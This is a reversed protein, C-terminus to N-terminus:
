PDEGYVAAAFPRNGIRLVTELFREGEDRRQVYVDLVRELADVVADEDLAPGIWRGLRADPGPSGGLLIQYHGEGEKDVGLIGIHGAHHHGCANVCGSMKLEIPGLDALEDVDEFRASIKHALSISTANALNCYDLGPCCILDTLTGINAHALDAEDLARWVALLDHEAVHPLLLNQDHTARVEGLSFCEALHAVLEMEEATADGPPRGPSKLSVWVVRRGASRHARTNQALWRGFGVGGRTALTAVGLAPAAPPPRFHARVREIEAADLKLGDGVRAYEEDVLRRMEDVGIKRVLAKIRAKYKNKRDGRLNYVRLIAETYGLIEDAPLFSRLAKAVIPTRGMGGGVLVEFGLAGDDARVLRLGIDHLATAAGDDPRGTVAIKFKRPLWNLEPHLTSWQRVLEAWPRPDEVEDPMLGALNDATVNRVCNGSSQIAHMQVDALEALIDPVEELKPWNLQLNQRTTWHGFGRDYRRTIYALRRVQRANLTGYPVNIRLMPAHRQLYLGNRLRLDRFEDEGLDGRLFRQTQDRFDAVREDVIRQDIESYSYM